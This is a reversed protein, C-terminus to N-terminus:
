CSVVVFDEDDVVAGGIGGCVEDGGAEGVDAEDLEWGGAEAGCSVGTGGGGASVDEGEGIVVAFGIGFPEGAEEGVEVGSFVGGDTAWVEWWWGL